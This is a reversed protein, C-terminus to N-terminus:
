KRYACPVKVNFKHKGTKPDYSTSANSQINQTMNLELEEGYGHEKIYNNLVAEVEEQQM